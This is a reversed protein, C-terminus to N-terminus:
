QLYALAHRRLALGVRCAGHCRGTHPDGIRRVPLAGEEETSEPPVAIASRARDRRRRRALRRRAIASTMPRATTAVPLATPMAAVLPLPGARRSAVAARADTVWVTSDDPVTVDDSFNVGANEASPVTLDTSTCTPSATRLPWVRALRSVVDRCASTSEALEVSALALCCSSASLVPWVLTVGFLEDAALLEDSTVAFDKSACSIEGDGDGDWDGDAAALGALESRLLSIRCTSAACAATMVACCCTSAACVSTSAACCVTSASTACFVFSRSACCAAHAVDLSDGLGDGVSEAEDSEGAEAAQEAAM